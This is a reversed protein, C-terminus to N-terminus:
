QCKPRHCAIWVVRIWVFGCSILHFAYNCKALASISGGSLAGKSSLATSLSFDDPFASIGRGGVPRADKKQAFASTTCVFRYGLRATPSQLRDAIECNAFKPLSICRPQV